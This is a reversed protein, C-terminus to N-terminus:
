KGRSRISRMDGHPSLDPDFELPPLPALPPLQRPMSRESMVSSSRMRTSAAAPQKGAATSAGSGPPAFPSAPLPRLAPSDRKKVLVPMQPHGMGPRPPGQAGPIPLPRIPRASPPPSLPSSSPPFLPPSRELQMSRHKHTYSSPGPEGFEPIRATEIHRGGLAARPQHGLGHTAASSGSGHASGTTPHSGHTAGTSSPHRHRLEATSMRRSADSPRELPSHDPIPELSVSAARSRPTPGALSPYRHHAHPVTSVHKSPTGSLLSTQFAAALPVSTTTSSRPRYPLVSPASPNATVSPRRRSASTRYNPEYQEPSSPPSPLQRLPPLNGASHEAVADMGPRVSRSAGGRSMNLVPSVPSLPYMGAHLADASATPTSSYSATATATSAGIKSPLGPPTPSVNVADPSTQADVIDDEADAM